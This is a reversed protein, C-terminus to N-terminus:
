FQKGFKSQRTQRSNCGRSALTNGKRLNEWKTFQEETLIKQMAIKHQQIRDLRSSKFQFMEETTLTNGNLKRELMSKRMAQRVMAQNKQLKFIADQQSQNLDLQLNMKKVQLTAQQEPTFNSQRGRNGKGQANISSSLVFMIVFLGVLKKM